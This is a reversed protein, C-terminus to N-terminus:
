LQRKFYFDFSDQIYREIINEPEDHIGIWMNGPLPNFSEVEKRIELLSLADVTSPYNSVIM